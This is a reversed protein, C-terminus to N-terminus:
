EEEDEGTEEEIDVVELARGSEDILADIREVPTLPPPTLADDEGEEDNSWEEELNPDAASPVLPRTLRDIERKLIYISFRLVAQDRGEEPRSRGKEEQYILRKIDERWPHSMSKRVKRWVVRKSTPNNYSKKGVVPRTGDAITHKLYNWHIMTLQTRMEHGPRTFYLDKSAYRWALANISECTSTQLRWSVSKIDEINKDTFVESVLRNYIRGGIGGPIFIWNVTPASHSCSKLHKFSPDKDFTHQGTMCLLIARFKESALEGNGQATIAADYCRNIIVRIWFRMPIMYNPKSIKWFTEAIAPSVYLKKIRHFTNNSLPSIGVLSCIQHLKTGGISTIVAGYTIDVNIKPLREMNSCKSTNLVKSNGWTFKHTCSNCEGTCTVAMGEMRFSLHNEGTRCNTCKRLLSLLSEKSVVLYEFSPLNRTTPAPPTWTPDQKFDR